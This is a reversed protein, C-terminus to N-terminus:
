FFPITDFLVDLLIIGAIVFMIASAVYDCKRNWHFNNIPGRGM